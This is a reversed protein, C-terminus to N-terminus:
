NTGTITAVLRRWIIPHQEAPFRQNMRAQVDQSSLPGIRHWEQVLLLVWALQETTEGCKEAKSTHTM